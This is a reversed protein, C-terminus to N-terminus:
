LDTTGTRLTLAKTRLLQQSQHWYRKAAELNGEKEGGPLYRAWSIQYEVTKGANATAVGAVNEKNNSGDAEFYCVVMLLTCSCVMMNINKM